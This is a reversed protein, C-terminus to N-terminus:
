TRRRVSGTFMHLHVSVSLALEMTCSDWCDGGSATTNRCDSSLTDNQLRGSSLYSSNQSCIRFACLHINSSEIYLKIRVWRPLTWHMILNSLLSSIVMGQALVENTLSTFPTEQIVTTPLLKTRWPIQNCKTQMFNIVRVFRIKGAKLFGM